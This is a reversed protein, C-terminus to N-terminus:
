WHRRTAPPTSVLDFLRSPSFPKVLYHDAGAAYSREIDDLQSATSIVIIQTRELGPSQKIRRCLELGDRPQELSVDLLVTDPRQAEVLAWADRVNSAECVALRLPELTLRILQCLNDDDEVVLLKRRAM